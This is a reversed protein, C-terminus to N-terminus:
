FMLVEGNRIKRRPELCLVHICHEDAVSALSYGMGSGAESVRCM